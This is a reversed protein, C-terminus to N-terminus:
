SKNVVSNNNNVILITIIKNFNSFFSSKNTSSQNQILHHIKQKFKFANKSSSIPTKDQQSHKSKLKISISFLLIKFDSVYNINKYLFKLMCLYCFINLLQWIRSHGHGTIKSVAKDPTRAANKDTDTNTSAQEQKHSAMASAGARSRTGM